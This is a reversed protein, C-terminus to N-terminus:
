VMSDRCDVTKHYTLVWRYKSVNSPDEDDSFVKKGHAARDWDILEHEKPSLLPSLFSLCGALQPEHALTQYQHRSCSFMWDHVVPGYICPPTLYSSTHLCWFILILSFRFWYAFLIWTSWGTFYALDSGHSMQNSVRKGSQWRGIDACLHVDCFQRVFQSKSSLVM